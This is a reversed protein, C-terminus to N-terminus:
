RTASSAAEDGYPREQCVVEKKESDTRSGPHRDLVQSRGMGASLTGFAKAM